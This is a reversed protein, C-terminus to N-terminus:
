ESPVKDLVDELEVKLVITNEERSRHSHRSLVSGLDDNEVVRPGVTELLHQLSRVQGEVGAAKPQCTCREMIKLNQILKPTIIGRLLAISVNPFPGQRSLSVQWGSKRGTGDLMPRKRRKRHVPDRSAGTIESYIQVPLCKLLKWDSDFRDKLYVIFDWQRHSHINGANLKDSSSTHFKLTVVFEDTVAPVVGKRAIVRGYRGTQIFAIRMGKPEKVRFVPVTGMSNGKITRRWHKENAHVMFFAIDQPARSVLVGITLGVPENTKLLSHDQACRFAMASGLQHLKM